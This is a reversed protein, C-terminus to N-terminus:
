KKKRKERERKRRTELGGRQRERVYERESRRDERDKSGEKM